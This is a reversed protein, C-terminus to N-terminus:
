RGVLLAGAILVLEGVVVGALVSRRVLYYGCTICGLLYSTILIAVTIM